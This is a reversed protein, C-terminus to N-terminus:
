KKKWGSGGRHRGKGVVVWKVVIDGICADENKWDPMSVRMGNELKWVRALYKGTGIFDIDIIKSELVIKADWIKAQKPEKNSECGVFLICFLVISVFNIWKM